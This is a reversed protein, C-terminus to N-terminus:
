FKEFADLGFLAFDYKVPDEPDFKRMHRTLEEVAPWDNQKRELLGLRRAVKGSHLDLPMFLDRQSIGKWIGFDVGREDQRVMWRLFMNLRKASSKKRIDAVHKRTRGPPEIEFFVERFTVLADRIDHKKQYAKEFLRRLGGHNRYINRLSKLFFICDQGNFTRHKFDRFRELDGDDSHLVFEHPTHNMRDLLRNMNSIITRRQGWAITAALFGSIEIDEPADFMRPIQIPDTEIFQEQNYLRYKEELFEHMDQLSSPDTDKM